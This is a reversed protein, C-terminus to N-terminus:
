GKATKINNKYVWFAVLEGYMFSEDGGECQGQVQIVYLCYKYFYVAYM